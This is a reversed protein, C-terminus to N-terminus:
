SFRDIVSGQWEKIQKVVEIIEDFPVERIIENSQKDVIKIQYQKIEKDYSVHVSFDLSKLIKNAHEVFDSMKNNGIITEKAEEVKRPPEHTARTHPLNYTNINPSLIIPPSTVQNIDKM